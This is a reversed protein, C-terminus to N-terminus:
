KVTSPLIRVTQRNKDRVITLLVEGKKKAILARTLELQNAIRNGDLEVIVDGAKLGAKAAASNEGVENILLGKGESVGFYSALQKSIPLAVIGIQRRSEFFAMGNQNGRLLFVEGDSTPLNPIPFQSISVEGTQPMSRKGLTAIFELEQANRLVTLKAQHDPAIESIIRMMKRISSVEEGNIAVIVDGNQVGAQQAPSNEVVKEVAVGRVTSLGYKAINQKNVETMEIGLYGETNFRLNDQHMRELQGLYSTDSPYQTNGGVKSVTGIVGDLKEFFTKPQQLETPAKETQQAYGVACVTAIILILSIKRFM